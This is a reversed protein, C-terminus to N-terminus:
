LAASFFGFFVLVSGVSAFISACASSWYPKGGQRQEGEALFCHSGLRLMHISRLFAYAGNSALLYRCIRQGQTNRDTYLIRALLALEM